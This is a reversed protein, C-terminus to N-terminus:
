CRGRPRRSARSAGREGPSDLAPRPPARLRAARSSLASWWSSRPGGRRRSAIAASGPGIRQACPDDCAGARAAGLNGKSRGMFWGNAWSVRKARSRPIGDAPQVAVAAADGAGSGGPHAGSEVTWPQAPLAPYEHPLLSVGSCASEESTQLSPMVPLLPRSSKQQTVNRDELQAGSEVTCPHGPLEIPKEHVPESEGSWASEDSEQPGPVGPM